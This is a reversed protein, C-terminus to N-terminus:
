KSKPIVLRVVNDFQSHCLFCSAQTKEKNNKKKGEGKIRMERKKLRQPIEPTLEFKEKLAM